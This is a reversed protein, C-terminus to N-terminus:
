AWGDAFIIMANTADLRLLKASDLPTLKAADHVVGHVHYLAHAAVLCRSVLLVPVAGRWAVGRWPVACCWM